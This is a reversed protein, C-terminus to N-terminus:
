ISDPHLPSKRSHHQGEKGCVCVKRALMNRSLVIPRWTKRLAVNFLLLQFEKSM